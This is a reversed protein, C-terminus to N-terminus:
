LKFYLKMAAFNIKDDYIRSFYLMTMKANANRLTM